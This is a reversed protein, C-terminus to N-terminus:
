AAVSRAVQGKSLLRSFGQGPGGLPAVCAPRVARSAPRFKAGFKAWLGNSVGKPDPCNPARDAHRPQLADMQCRKTGGRGQAYQRQKPRSRDPHRGRMRDFGDVNGGLTLRAFEGDIEGVGDFKLVGVAIAHLNRGRGAGVADHAADLHAGAFGAGVPRHEREGIVAVLLDVAQDDRRMVAHDAGAQEPGVEAQRADDVDRRRRAIRRFTCSLALASTKRTVSSGPVTIVKTASNRVGVIQRLEIQPLRVGVLVLDIREREILADDDADGAQQRQEQGDQEHDFAADHERGGRREAPRHQDIDADIEAEPALHEVHRRAGLADPACRAFRDQRRRQQHKQEGIEVEIAPVHAVGVDGSPQSANRPASTATASYEGATAEPMARM